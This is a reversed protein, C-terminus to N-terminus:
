RCYKLYEGLASSIAPNWFKLIQRHVELPACEGKERYLLALRTVIDLSDPQLTFSREYLELAQSPNNLQQFCYALNYLADVQYPNLELVKQYYSQAQPINGELIFTNALNYLTNTDKPHIALAKFYAEKAKAYNKQKEYIPGTKSFKLFDIEQPAMSVPRFIILFVLIFLFSPLLPKYQKAKIQDVLWTITAAEYILLFPLITTRHRHTLFFILTFILQSFIFINLYATGEKKRMTLILGLMALPMMLYFPNIDWKKQYNRQLLLDIDYAKQTETFFLSFKNALLNLYGGPSQQIFSLGQNFWFDSVEKPKLKRKSLNEAMIVQDEDQGRHDPRLFSPHEYVGSANPNNGIYFSLGSQASIWVWSCGIIRNRLGTLAVILCVGMILPLLIKPALKLNQRDSFFLYILFLGFAIMMKGDGLVSLGIILGLIFIEKGQLKHLYLLLLVIVLSLFINLPIPMMLWDYFILSFSSASLLGAWIATKDGFIKQTTKYILVCNLAGLFIHFFRIAEIHGLCLGKLVALFYPYLPLGFFTREGWFSVRSIEYAWQQYYLVDTAPNDYFFYNKRLFIWYLIRLVLAIAFIILAPIYPKIKSSSNNM